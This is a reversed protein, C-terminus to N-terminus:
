KKPTLTLKSDEPRLFPIGRLVPYWLGQQNRLGGEFESLEQYLIPDVWKIRESGEGHLNVKRLVFISACNLPNSNNVVKVKEILRLGSANIADELPGIYSLSKMRNQQENTASGFDPEILVVYNKSVRALERLIELELGGNPEIAHVTLVTDVSSTPVPINLMNGVAFNIDVNSNKSNAIAFSLRSWSIDFAFIEIQLKLGKLISILSTAEGTGADLLSSGSLIYPQIVQVVETTFKEASKNNEKLYKTYSGAQLDYIIEIVQSDLPMGENKLLETLNIGLEYATHIRRLLDASLEM